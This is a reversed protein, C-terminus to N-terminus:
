STAITLHNWTPTAWRWDKFAASNHISLRRIKGEELIERKKKIYIKRLKKISKKPLIVDMTATIGGNYFFDYYYIKLKIRIILIIRLTHIIIDLVVTPCVKHGRM